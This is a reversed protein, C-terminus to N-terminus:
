RRASVTISAIYSDLWEPAFLMGCPHRLCKLQKGLALRYVTSESVDLAMSAGYKTLYRIGNIIKETAKDVTTNKKKVNM